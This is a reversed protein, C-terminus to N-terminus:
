ARTRPLGLGTRPARARPAEGAEEPDLTRHPSRLMAEHVYQESSYPWSGPPLPPPTGTPLAASNAPRMLCPPGTPPATTVPSFPVSRSPSASRLPPQNSPPVTGRAAERAPRPPQGLLLSGQPPEALHPPQGLLAPLRVRLRWFRAGGGRGAGVQSRPRTGRRSCGGRASRRPRGTSSCGRPSSRPCTTCLCLRGGGRPARRPPAQRPTTRATASRTTSGQPATAYPPPTNPATSKPATRQPCNIQPTHTPRWKPPRRIPRPSDAATASESARIAPAHAPGHRQLLCAAVARCPVLLHEPRRPWWVVLAASSCHYGAAVL